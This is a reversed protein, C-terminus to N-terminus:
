PMREKSEVRFQFQEVVTRRFIVECGCYAGVVVARRIQSIASGLTLLGCAGRLCCLRAGHRHGAYLGNDGQGEYARDYSFRCHAPELMDYRLNQRYAEEEDDKAAGEEVVVERQQHYCRVTNCRYRVPHTPFCAVM